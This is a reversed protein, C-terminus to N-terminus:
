SHQKSIGLWLLSCPFCVFLGPSNLCFPPLEGGWWRGEEEKRKEVDKEGEKGGNEKRWDVVLVCGIEMMM